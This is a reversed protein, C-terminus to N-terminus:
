NESAAKRFDPTNITLDDNNQDFIDPKKEVIKLTSIQFKKEHAGVPWLVSVDLHVLDVPLARQEEEENEEPEVFKIDVTWRYGNDFTGEFTGDEFDDILLLEEMKERAHFVACTYDDATKSSKLGGSFLQLIVVLSLSLVMIAVLTEILTFGGQLRNPQFINNRKHYNRNM